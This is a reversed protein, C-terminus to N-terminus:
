IQTIKGKRKNPLTKNMQKKYLLLLKWLCDTERWWSGLASSLDLLGRIFHSICCLVSFTLFFIVIFVGCCMFLYWLLIFLKKELKYHRLHMIVYTVGYNAVDELFVVCYTFIKNNSVFSFLIKGNSDIWHQIDRGHWFFIKVREM